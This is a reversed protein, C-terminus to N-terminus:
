EAVEEFNVWTNPAYGAVLQAPQTGDERKPEDLDRLILLFGDQISPRDGKVSRTVIMGDKDPPLQVAFHATM